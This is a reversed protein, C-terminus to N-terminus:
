QSPCPKAPKYSKPPEDPLLPLKLFEKNQPVEKYSTLRITMPTYEGCKDTNKEKGDILWIVGNKDIEIKGTFLHGPMAPGAEVHYVTLSHGQITDKGVETVDVNAFSPMPRDPRSLHDGFMHSDKVSKGSNLDAWMTTAIGTYPYRFDYRILNDSAHIRAEFKYVSPLKIDVTGEYDVSPAPVKTTNPDTSNLHVAVQAIADKAPAIGLASILGFWLTTKRALTM